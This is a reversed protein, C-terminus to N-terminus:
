GAYFLPPASMETITPSVLSEDIDGFMARDFTNVLAETSQAGIIFLRRNVLFNPVGTVGSQRVQAEQSLVTRRTLDDDLTKDVDRAEIGHRAALESLVDRNGIDLGSEFFGKLFEEALESTNVRGSEALKMVRHANLTNPIRSVKDFHFNIGESKGVETLKDLAPQLEQPDGFKSALYEEVDMGALPMAPNLQFPYWSVTSPGRVALLADDLRRKGLYCWPCVLDAIIDVQLAAQLPKGDQGIINSLSQSM